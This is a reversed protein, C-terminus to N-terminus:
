SPSITTTARSTRGKPSRSAWTPSSRPSRTSAGPQDSPHPRRRHRARRLPLSMDLAERKLRAELALAKLAARRAALAASAEDKLANIAAGASRREDPSMKGLTALLASITGKKGLAAVRAAELAAEDRAAAIAALTQQRLASLDTMAPRDFADAGGLGKERKRSFTARLAPHPTKRRLARAANLGRGLGRGSAALPSLPPERRRPCTARPRRSSRRSRRRSASPSIPCCRATSKSAPPSSAPSSAALLHPRADRAAANIRQIWLARFERKRNKRDRYAYQMAKEVAPKAARITNKRRGFYGKAAKLIKKHKAHSTVGRKVRAM